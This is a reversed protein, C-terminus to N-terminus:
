NRTSSNRFARARSNANGHKAVAAGAGAAVFATTTSINFTGAGDGGTGCTDILPRRKPKVAIAKARTAQAFGVLEEVTEGRLRLAALFAGAQADTAGGGILENM